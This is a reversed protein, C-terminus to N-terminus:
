QRDGQAANNGDESTYEYAGLDHVTGQPRPINEADRSPAVPFAADIAPSGALLHFNNNAPDIFRPDKGTINRALSLCSSVGSVMDGATTLNNNIQIGSDGKCDSNRIPAASPYYFINNEILVNSQGGWLAIQGDRGPNSGSFTNNIVFIANSGPSLQIGWGARIEYFINNVVNTYSGRLYLGHDQNYDYSPCGGPLRGLRYFINSDFTINYATTAVYGGCGQGAVSPANCPVQVRGSDHVKNGYFYIDHAGEGAHLNGGKLNRFEFNEIRIYGSNQVPWGTLTSHNQGDLVAGWKHEARFVVWNGSTGGRTLFVINGDKDTDTYVGDRVIVTDGPNVINAAKQITQFPSGMTGSNSDSGDPSVYYTAAPAEQIDSCMCLLLLGTM